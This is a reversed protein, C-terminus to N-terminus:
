SKVTNSNKKVTNQGFLHQLDQGRATLQKSRILSDSLETQTTITLWVPLLMLTLLYHSPKQSIDRLKVNYFAQRDQGKM